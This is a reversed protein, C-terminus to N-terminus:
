WWYIKNNSTSVAAYLPCVLLRFHLKGSLNEPGESPIEVFGTYFANEMIEGCYTDVFSAVRNKNTSVVVRWPCSELDCIKEDADEKSLKESISHPKNSPLESKWDWTYIKGNNGLAYLSSYTAAIKTFSRVGAPFDEGKADHWYQLDDAFKFNEQTIETPATNEVKREKPKQDPFIHYHKFRKTGVQM